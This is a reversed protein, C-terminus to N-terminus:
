KEKNKQLTVKRRVEIVVGMITVRDIPLIAAEFKPNSSFLLYNEDAKKVRRLAPFRDHTYSLIGMSEAFAVDISVLCIDSSSIENKEVIIVARDGSCIHDGIMSDDGVVFVFAAYNGIVNRGIIETNRSASGGFIIPISLPDDESEVFLKTQAAFSENPKFDTKGTIYDTSVGFYEAIKMLSDMTPRKQGKEYYSILRESLDLRVALEKQTLGAGKRLEHLREAFNNM